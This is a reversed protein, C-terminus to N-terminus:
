KDEELHSEMVDARLRLLRIELPTNGAIRAQEAAERIHERAAIQASALANKEIHEVVADLPDAEKTKRTRLVIGQTQISAKVLDLDFQISRPGLREGPIHGEAFLRLITSGSTGLEEAVESARM